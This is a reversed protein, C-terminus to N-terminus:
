SRAWSRLFCAAAAAQCPSAVGNAAALGVDPILLHAEHSGAPDPRMGSSSRAATTRNAAGGHRNPLHKVTVTPSAAQDRSILWWLVTASSIPHTVDTSSM